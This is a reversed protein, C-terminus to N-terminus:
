IDADGDQKKRCTSTCTWMKPSWHDWREPSFELHHPFKDTVPPYIDERRQMALTSFAVPTGELVGVPQLGDPGGGRPLTTDKIAIRVNYPLIPYIRLTENITHQLYRMSKLDAYTPPRDMGVCQSIEQRLKTVIEPRRSLEYFMWSLTMATTDRGALLVATIQDRLVKPDRTFAALAHLFTYGEESTSKKELEEPSLSLAQDIFPQITANLVKLGKYFERRPVLRNLPGMRAIVGQTHQVEAFADAFTQETTEMSGVSTGLLFDTAADLTFRFFVDVLNVTSGLGVGSLLPLLIKTHKEFIHLDSVRDKIFQPRLLQRSTHWLQGDTTFIGTCWIDAYWRGGSGEVLTTRVMVWLTM